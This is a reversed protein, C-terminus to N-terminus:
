RKDKSKTVTSKVAGEMVIQSTQATALYERAEKELEKPIGTSMFQNYRRLIHDSPWLIGSGFNVYNKIRSLRLDFHQGGHRTTMLFVLYDGFTAPYLSASVNPNLTQYATNLRRLAAQLIALSTKYPYRPSYDQSYVARKGFYLRRDSIIASMLNRNPVIHDFQSLWPLDLTPNSIGEDVCEWEKVVLHESEFNPNQAIFRSWHTKGAVYFGCRGVEGSQSIRKLLDAFVDLSRTQCSFFFNTV